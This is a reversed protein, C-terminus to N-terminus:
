APTPSPNIGVSESGFSSITGDTRRSSICRRTKMESSDSEVAERNLKSIGQEKDIINSSFGVFKNHSEQIVNSPANPTNSEEFELPFYSPTNRHWNKSVLRVTFLDQSKLYSFILHLVHDPFRSTPDDSNTDSIRRKKVIQEDTQSNPCLEAM